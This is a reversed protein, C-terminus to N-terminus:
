VGEKKRGMANWKAAARADTAAWTEAQPAFCCERCGVYAGGDYTPHRLEAAYAGCRPCPGLPPVPENEQQNNVNGSRAAEDTTQGYKFDEDYKQRFGIRIVELVTDNNLVECLDGFECEPDIDAYINDDQSEIGEWIHRFFEQALEKEKDPSMTSM